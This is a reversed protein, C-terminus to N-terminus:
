APTEPDEQTETEARPFLIRLEFWGDQAKVTMSGEYKEVISRISKMGYGHYRADKRTLPLGDAFRLEEECCNEVRFRVFSKQRTVSIHILRKEPDEIKRVGEIANDLANGILVSLDTPRMFDLEKGDAVCTVTIGLSQCVLSKATLLTDLVKNGTKNQAEYSRIDQELEDLYRLKEESGLESRLLRIHHKLDHYKQNILEVSEASVRYVEKQMHLLKRLYEKEMQAGMECLQVHYAFLLGVGGLDALTRIAFKELDNRGSFPTRPSAFSLNSLTFIFLGLLIVVALERGTLVLEGSQERYRREVAWVVGFVVGHVVVFFLINTLINQPLGLSTLGFFFMQWEFAAAFEGLIFIRVTYYLANRWSFAALYWFALFQLGFIVLMSLVFLWSSVGDTVTMFAALVVLFLLSAVATKGRSHRRKTVSLFVMLSLWYALAYYLGPTHGLDVGYPSM